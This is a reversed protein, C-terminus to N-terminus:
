AMMYGKVICFSCDIQHFIIQSLAIKAKGLKNKVYNEKKKDNVLLNIKQGSYLAQIFQVYIEEIEYVMKPWTTENHPWSLWVSEQTAWEAPM